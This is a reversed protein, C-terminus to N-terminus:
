SEAGEPRHVIVVPVPSHTACHLSVSGLVLGMFGGLGRAGVVLLDAQRAAELLTPAAAGEVVRLEVDEDGLGEDSLLTRCVEEQAGALEELPPQLGYSPGEALAPYSWAGVALLRAGWRSAEAAAWRLAHRSGESGDIGVVIQKVEAPM